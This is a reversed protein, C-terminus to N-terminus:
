SIFLRAKIFISKFLNLLLITCHHIDAGVFLTWVIVVCSLM